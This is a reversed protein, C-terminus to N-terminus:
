GVSKAAKLTPYGRKTGVVLNLGSLTLGAGPAIGKSPDYVENFSLQFSQCRQRQLFVRWQEVNGIGGYNGGSGFPGPQFGYAPAYNDPTITIRQQLTPNYDYAIGINLTHPSLYKGLIYFFFAREYGQLGALNYWSTIFSLLVPAGNDLYLGPTEQFVQGFQNLYTHLQDYVVSSVAPINLFTSWKRYFYDYMLTVGSSLTFRVQNTAPINIASVVSAGQTYAQVPAGIYSTGLQRNLVWIGKDSEFMLGEPTFVISRPNSSGVTGTIFVPDSFDNNAGTIDPGTGTLYYIADQKFIVLKDDMAALCRAPGTSGQAGITPALYLTFLDSMEVPVSEIVQKSYWLLNGDEGDILFLRNKFLTLATCSPPGINEVVGGTTYLIQNGLISSDALTDVYALSDTGTTVNNQPSSISTIQYYVQQAVSWRYLVIRAPNNLATKATVRYYPVNITVSGIVGTGTTTVALPISPASRHTNGQADTWEYTAVYFYANANTAGDPQAHIAGGTASWVATMDEPWLHFNQEVPKYGDYAWLFGGSLHLNSGIESTNAPVNFTFTAINMGKQAYIGGAQNTTLGQAKNVPTLLDKYLYPIKVVDGNVTVNSLVQTGAFGGANSYAIKAIINGTTGQVLFYTPQNTGAYVALMYSAGKYLFAKSILGVGRLFNVSSGVTGANGQTTSATCPISGILSTRQSIYNYNDPVEYFATLISQSSNAATQATSTLTALATGGILSTVATTPTSYLNQDYGVTYTNNASPTTPTFFTCWIKPSTGTMDATLSILSPTYGALVTTTPHLLNTNLFTLRVAGGGDSGSFAFYLRGNASIGDYGATLSAVQSSMDILTGATSPASYPFVLVKLHTTTDTVLFSVAFFNGLIFARPLVATAPLDVPNAIVQGTASDIVQYHAGLNDTYVCLSAGNPATVGEALTLNTSTRVAPIVSVDLAQFPGRNLWEGTDASLAQLTNGVALLNDQFTALTTQPTSNSLTTLAGFGNRKQLLGEIDFIVNNLEEMQGPPQQWPDSKTNLGQSFNINLNAKNVM